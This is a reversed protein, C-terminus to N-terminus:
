HSTHWSEIKWVGKPDKMFVVTHYRQSEKDERQTTMILYAADEPDNIKLRLSAPVSSSQEVLSCITSKGTVVDHLDELRGDFVLSAGASIWQKTQEMNKGGLIDQVTQVLPEWKKSQDENKDDKAQGTWTAFFILVVAAIINQTRSM